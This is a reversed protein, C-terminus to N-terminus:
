LLLGLDDSSFLGTLPVNMAAISLREAFEFLKSRFAVQARFLGDFTKSITSRTGWGNLVKNLGIRIIPPLSEKSEFM